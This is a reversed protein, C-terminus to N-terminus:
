LNGAQTTTLCTWRRVRRLIKRKAVLTMVDIFVEHPIPVLDMPFVRLVIDRRLTGTQVLALQVAIVTAGTQIICEPLHTVHLAAM